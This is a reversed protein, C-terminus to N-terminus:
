LQLSSSKFLSVILANILIQANDLAGQTALQAFNLAAQQELISHRDVATYHPKEFEEVIEPPPTPM